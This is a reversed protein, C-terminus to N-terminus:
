EFKLHGTKLDIQPKLNLQVPGSETWMNFYINFDLVTNDLEEDSSLEVSITNKIIRPEYRELADELAAAVGRARESQSFSGSTGSIGYFLVSESVLPYRARDIKNDDSQTNLLLTLDRIVIDRMRQSSLFSDNRKDLKSEPNLDTLRDLISPQLRESTAQNRM